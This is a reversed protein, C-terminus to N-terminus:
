DPPTFGPMVNEGNAPYHRIDAVGSVPYGQVNDIFGVFNSGKSRFDTRLAM